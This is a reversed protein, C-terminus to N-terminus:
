TKSDLITEEGGDIVKFGKQKTLKDRAEKASSEKIADVVAKTAPDNMAIIDNIKSLRETDLSEIIDRMEQLKEVTPINGVMGNFTNIISIDRIGTVTDLDKCLKEYDDHAYNNVFDYFGSQMILDYEMCNYYKYDFHVDTYQFFIDFMKKMEYEMLVDSFNFDKVTLMQEITFSFGANFIDIIAYKRGMTIYSYIEVNDAVYQLFTDTDDHIMHHRFDAYEIM